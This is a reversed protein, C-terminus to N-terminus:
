TLAGNGPSFLNENSFQVIVISLLTVCYKLVEIKDHLQKVLDNEKSRLVMMQENLLRQQNLDELLKNKESALQQVHKVFDDIVRNTAERTSTTELLSVKMQELAETTASHIVILVVFIYVKSIFSNHLFLIKIKM